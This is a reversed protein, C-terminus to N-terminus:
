GSGRGVNYAVARVTFEGYAYSGGPADYRAEGFSAIRAPGYDRYDRAPTTWRLRTFTKGDPSAASRDDSIFDALLGDEGFVLTASVENAGHTFHAIARRDDVAQWRIAADVLSAPALLAMDNLMTVSESRDMVPGRADVIPVLGLTRVQMTAHGDALRHYVEVPLGGKTAHLLFLRTPRDLFSQQDATFAMWPADPGSRIRGEFRVAFNRVRPRGVAGVLRLYRQVPAPLPALDADTVLPADVPRALGEQADQLFRARYSTPGAMAATLLAAGLLLVNPVTGAKADGWAAVIVAQSVLAAAIGVPWWADPRAVALAVAALVLMAALLWLLAMGRSIPQALQPLEALGFGKVVGLLHILGHLALLALLVWPLRGVFPAPAPPPPALGVDHPFLLASATM